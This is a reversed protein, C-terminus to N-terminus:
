STFMRRNTLFSISAMTSRAMTNTNLKKRKRTTSRSGSALYLPRLLSLWSCRAAIMSRNPRFPLLHSCNTRYMPRVTRPSKPRLKSEVWGTLRSIRSLKGLVKSSTPMDVTRVIPMPRHIPMLAPHIRPLRKSLILVGAVIASYPVGSNKRPM